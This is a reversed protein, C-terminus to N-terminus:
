AEPIEILDAIRRKEEDNIDANEAWALVEDIELAIIQQGYGCSKGSYHSYRGGASSEGHLFWAGKKTKYLAESTSFFNHLSKDEAAIREATDTNYVKGGIIRKM